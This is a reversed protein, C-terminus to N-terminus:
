TQSLRRDLRLILDRLSRRVVMASPLVAARPIVVLDLGMPLVHRQTRFSERILRKWRNRRVAAGVKRSVSLGLRTVDRDNRTGFILLVSDSVSRREAYVRQFERNHKLRLTNPFSAPSSAPEQPLETASM